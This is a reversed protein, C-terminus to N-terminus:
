PVRAPHRLDPNGYTRKFTELVSHLGDILVDRLEPDETRRIEEVARVLSIWDAPSPGAAREPWVLAPVTSLLKTISPIPSSVVGGAKGMARVHVQIELRVSEVDESDDLNVKLVTTGSLDFPVQDGRKILQVIAKARVHRLALEYFVNPNGGTLDAVVLDDELVHRIVEPMIELVGALGPRLVKYGLPEVAPRILDCLMADAHRREPSDPEGIPGIVFCSKAPATTM